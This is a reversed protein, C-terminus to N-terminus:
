ILAKLESFKDIFIDPKEGDTCGYGYRVFVSAIGARGAARLDTHNDGIMVCDTLPSATRRAAEFLLAPDPKLPFGEGNGLICDFYGDLELTKLINLTASTYKNTVVALKCNANKLYALTDAVGEYACTHVVTHELYYDRMIKVAHDIQQDDEPVKINKFSQVIVDRM